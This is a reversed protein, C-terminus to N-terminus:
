RVGSGYADTWPTGGNSGPPVYPALTQGPPTAGPNPILTSPGGQVYVRFYHGNADYSSFASNWNSLWGVAEPTYPRLFNLPKDLYGLFETLGGGDPFAGHASDLLGPTKDLLDDLSELTPRLDHLTPKLDEFLPRLNHSVPILTRTPHELDQLLPVAEDAVGPVKELTTRATQLTPPLQRLGQRLQDQHRAALATLRSFETVVTRIDGQRDSLTGIMGNLRLVLDRIAPGDTGVADLVDGLANVAPGAAQVTSNFDGEHGSVTSQLNNVLSRVRALTPADLSNLVQDVEIPSLQAGQITGGDPITPGTVPGDKIDVYREGLLAKFPVTIVAGEHLPSRDRDVSLTLVASGNEPKIDKVSGAEFGNITVVGGKIINTASPLAVNVTYSQGAIFWAGAVVLAIAVGLATILRM